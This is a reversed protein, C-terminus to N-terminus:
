VDTGDVHDAAARMEQTRRVAEVHESKGCAVNDTDQVHATEIQGDVAPPIAAEGAARARKGQRETVSRFLRRREGDVAAVAAGVGYRCIIPIATADRHVWGVVVDDHEASPGGGGVDIEDGLSSLM